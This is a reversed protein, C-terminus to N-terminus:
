IMLPIEEFDNAAEKHADMCHLELIDRVAERLSTILEEKTKEQANAGPIEQVWGLWWDGDKKVIATFKAKM